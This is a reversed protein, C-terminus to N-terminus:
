LWQNFYWKLIEKAIPVSVTSGEGGNEVLITIVIEPNEYPAFGIFWSHPTKNEGAQATGTKGSVKVPLDNLYRASGSIVAERMGKRIIELIEKEIVSDNIIEPLIELDGIKNILQPKLLKGSNAITAIALTMQLPTVMIDGQGISTNYTDGIYWKENKVEEKWEKNPILGSAEQFLDINSPKGLGFKKLYNSIREIGLGEVEGYGGGVTYFYVNCSEAIAKILNTPGHIKWDNYVYFVDPYYKNQISIAGKCNIIKEPTIIKEKLAAAAMLPKITSGPPYTGSIARNFLPKSPNENIQKLEEKSIGQSFKNNDSSPLSIMTLIKGTNPNLIIAVAKSSYLNQLRTQLVEFTKEQLKSDISLTISKGPITEKEAFINKVKGISDIEIIRKGYEGRLEDEYFKEIGTKGIYDDILYKPHQQREEPDIKGLYGLIHSFCEGNIYKRQSAIEVLIAPNQNFTSDLILAKEKTIGQQISIPISFNSNEQIIKEIDQKSTELLSALKELTQNLDEKQKILDAPIVALDFRPENSVMPLHNADYIIGRFSKIPYPRVRNEKAIIEWYGGQAIQLSIAKGFLFLLLIALTFYVFYQKGKKIPFEIKERESEPAKKIKESDLFIEETEISERNLRKIQYKSLDEM